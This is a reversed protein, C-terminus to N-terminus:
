AQIAGFGDTLRQESVLMISDLCKRVVPIITQPLQGTNVPDITDMEARLQSNGLMVVAKSMEALSIEVVDLMATPPNLLQTETLAREVEDRTASGNLGDILVQIHTRLAKRHIKSAEEPTANLHAIRSSRM